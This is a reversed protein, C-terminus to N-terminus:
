LLHNILRGSDILEKLSREFRANKLAELYNLNHMDTGALEVMNNEILREAIKKVEASYYGALSSINIQFIVGRDKLEEYKGFNRFFYSYREPHALIIKYGAIQMDFFYDKWHPYENFYSMEVLLYNKGFTLLNRAALKVGFKEDILYEAAAEIEITINQKKLERKLQELGPFITEASNQYFEGQIHPTTILKSYGLEKMGKILEVSAELSDAGDDIKPILHSHMDTKLVSLDVPKMLRSTSFINKLFSM